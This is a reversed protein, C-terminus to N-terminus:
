KMMMAKQVRKSEQAKANRAENKAMQAAKEQAKKAAKREKRSPNSQTHTPSEKPMSEEKSMEKKARKRKPNEGLSSAGLESLEEKHPAEEAFTEEPVKEKMAEIKLEDEKPSEVEAVGDEGAQERLQVTTSPSSQGGVSFVGTSTPQTDRAPFSPTSATFSVPGNIGGFNFMGRQPFINAKETTSSVAEEESKTAGSGEKAEPNESASTTSGAPSSTAFSNLTPFTEQSNAEFARAPVAPFIPKDRASAFSTDGWINQNSGKGTCSPSAAEKSKSNKSPGPSMSGEESKAVPTASFTPPSSKGFVFASTMETDSRNESAATSFKTAEAREPTFNPQSFTFAKSPVPMTGAAPAPVTNEHVDRAEDATESSSVIEVAPVFDGSAVAGADKIVASPGAVAKTAQDVATRSKDLPGVTHAAKLKGWAEDSQPSNQVEKGEAATTNVNEAEMMAPAPTASSELTTDAAGSSVSTTQSELNSHNGISGENQDQYNVQRGPGEIRARIDSNVYYVKEPGDEDDDENDDEIWSFDEQIDHEEYYDLLPQQYDEGLLKFVQKCIAFHKRDFPSFGQNELCLTCRVMREFVQKLCERLGRESKAAKEKLQQRVERTTELGSDHIKQLEEEQSDQLAHYREKWEDCEHLAVRLEEPFQNARDWLENLEKKVEVWRDSDAVRSLSQTLRAVSECREKLQSNLTEIELDMERQKSIDRIDAEAKAQLIDAITKKSPDAKILTLAEEARDVQHKCDRRSHALDKTLQENNMDAANLDHVVENMDEAVESLSTTKRELEAQLKINADSAMQFATVTNALEGKMKAVTKDMNAIVALREEDKEIWYRETEKAEDTETDEARSTTVLDSAADESSSSSDNSGLEKRVSTPSSPSSESCQSSSGLLTEDSSSGSGSRNNGITM